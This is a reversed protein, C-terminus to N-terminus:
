GLTDAFATLKHAIDRACRRYTQAGLLYPDEVQWDVIKDAYSPYATRLFYAIDTNLAVIHDFRDMALKAVDKPRHESIDIGFEDRMVTIADATPSGLTPNTGASDIAGMTLEMKQALHEAIPSRCINGYCVFLINPQHNDSNKM